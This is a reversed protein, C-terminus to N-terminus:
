LEESVSSAPVWGIGDHCSIRAWGQAEDELRVRAGPKLTFLVLTEGGPAFRAPTDAGPRTVAFRQGTLAYWARALRGPGAPAAPAVSAPSASTSAPPTYITMTPAHESHFVLPFPGATVTRYRRERADFYSFSVAPVAKAFPEAAVITQEYVRHGPDSCSPAAKVDYVKLGPGPPVAPPTLADPLGEGSLTLTVTVLDGPAVDLPEAKVTFAFQGVAGSFGSPRGELPVEHIPLDLPEVAITVAQEQSQTFWGARVTRVLTGQLQPALRLLGARNARARNRYRRVDYVRGEIVASENPLEEFAGFTVSTADPMGALSVQRGLTEGSTYVAVTMVFQEGRYIDARDATLRAFVPPTAAMAPLSVATVALLLGVVWGNANHSRQMMRWEGFPHRHEM